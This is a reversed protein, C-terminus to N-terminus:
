RQLIELKNPLFRYYRKRANTIAKKSIDYLWDLESEGSRIAGFREHFACVRANAKRVDFHAASFGLHDIAYAYVMLASEIAVHAPQRDAIIWSGWCFSYGKADYLRVTGISEGQFEIIFYAEGTASAYRRLWSRQAELETSTVSLHRGKNEDTRLSLILEADSERADRLVLTKGKLWHAKHIRPSATATM